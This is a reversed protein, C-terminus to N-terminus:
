RSEDKPECRLFITQVYLFGGHSQTFSIIHYSRHTRIYGLTNRMLEVTRVIKVTVSTNM